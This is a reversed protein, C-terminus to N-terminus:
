TARTDLVPLGRYRVPFRFVTRGSRLEHIAPDMLEVQGLQPLATVLSTRAEVASLQPSVTLTTRLPAENLVASTPAAMASSGSFLILGLASVAPALKM